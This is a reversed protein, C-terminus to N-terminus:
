HGEHKEEYERQARVRERGRKAEREKADQLALEHTRESHVTPMSLLREVDESDCSPCRTVHDDKLVLEEFEEDCSECAYEYIPM